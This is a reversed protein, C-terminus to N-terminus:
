AVAAPTKPNSARSAQAAGARARGALLGTPASAMSGAINHRPALRGIASASAAPDPPVAAADCPPDAPEVGGVNGTGDAARQEAAEHQQRQEANAVGDDRGPRDERAGGHQEARRGAAEGDTAVQGDDGAENAQGDGSGSGRSTAERSPVATTLGGSPTVVAHLRGDHHVGSALAPDEVDVPEVLGGVLRAHDLHVARDAVQRHRQVAIGPVCQHNAQAAAGGGARDGAVPRRRQVDDLQVLADPQGRRQERVDAVVDQIPGAGHQM